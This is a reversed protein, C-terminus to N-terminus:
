KLNKRIKWHDIFKQKMMEGYEIAEEETLDAVPISPLPSFGEQRTGTIVKYMIYNPMSPPLLEFKKEM